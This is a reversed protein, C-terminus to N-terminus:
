LFKDKGPYANSTGEREGFGRWDIAFTVYGNKAMQLGYDYNHDGINTVREPSNDVTIGMVSDKGFPGHGHCCLIAPLPKESSEKPIFLWAIAAM